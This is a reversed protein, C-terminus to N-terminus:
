HLEFEVSFLMRVAAPKGDPGLAPKFKWSQVTEVTREDLGAGLKKGVVIHSARGDTEIVASLEVSGEVHAKFAADTYQPDPCRVCAPETYGIAGGDPYDIKRLVTASQSETETSQPFKGGFKGVTKGNKMRRVEIALSIYKGDTELHGLIESEAHIVKKAPGSDLDSSTVIPPKAASLAQLFQARDVVAFKGGFKALAESFQDALNRGLQTVELGPGSFDLVVVKKAHVTKLVDATQTVLLDIQPQQAYLPIASCFFIVLAAASIRVIPRLLTSIKNLLPM